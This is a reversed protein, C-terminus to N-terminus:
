NLNTIYQKIDEVDYYYNEVHYSKIELLTPLNALEVSSYIQLSSYDIEPTLLSAYVYGKKAKKYKNYSKELNIIESMLIEPVYQGGYIGFKTNSM